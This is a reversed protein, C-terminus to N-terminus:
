AVEINVTSPMAPTKSPIHVLLIGNELKAQIAPADMKDNLHFQISKENLYFEKYYTKEKNENDAPVAKITLQDQKIEVQIEERSFGPLAIELNWASENQIVNYLPKNQVPTTSVKSHYFGLPSRSAPKISTFYM